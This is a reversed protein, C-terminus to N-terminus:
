PNPIPGRREPQALSDIRWAEGQRILRITDVSPRQGTAVSRVRATAHDGDVAVSQVTLKPSEVGDLGVRWAQECPLQEEARAVLTRSLLRDCLQQYDRKATAAGFSLVTGRVQDADSEGCGAGAGVLACAVLALVDRRLLM